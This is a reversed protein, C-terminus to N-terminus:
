PQTGGCACSRCSCPPCGSSAAARAVRQQPAQCGRNPRRTAECGGINRSFGRLEQPGLLGCRVGGAARAGHLQVGLDPPLDNGLLLLGVVLPLCRAEELGNLAALELHTHTHTHRHLLPPRSPTSPRPWHQPASHTPRHPPPPGTAWGQPPVRPRQVPLRGAQRANCGRGCSHPEQGAQWM